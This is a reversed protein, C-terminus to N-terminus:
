EVWVKNVTLSCSSGGGHSFAVGRIYYATTLASIDVTVTTGIASYQVSTKAAFNQYNDSNTGAYISAGVPCPYDEDGSKGGITFYLTTYETLDIKNNTYFASYGSEGTAVGSVRATLDNGSIGNWGGTEAAYSGSDFLVLTYSLTVSSSQGETTVSVSISKSQSNDSTHCEVTYIGPKVNFLAYGSTDKAKLTKTGNKCTCISGAPYTVYIISRIKEGGSLVYIM